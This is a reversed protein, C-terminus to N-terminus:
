RDEGSMGDRNRDSGRIRNGHRAMGYDTHEGICYDDTTNHGKCDQERHLGLDSSEASPQSQESLDKPM